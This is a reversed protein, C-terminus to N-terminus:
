ASTQWQEQNNKCKYPIVEYSIFFVHTIIKMLDILMQIAKHRIAGFM